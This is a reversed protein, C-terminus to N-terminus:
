WRSREHRKPFRRGHSLIDNLMWINTKDERLPPVDVLLEGDRVIVDHTWFRDDLSRVIGGISLLDDLMKVLSEQARVADYSDPYFAFTALVGLDSRSIGIEKLDAESEGHLEEYVRRALANDRWGWEAVPDDCGDELDQVAFAIRHIDWSPHEGIYAYRGGRKVTLYPAAEFSGARYSIGEARPM